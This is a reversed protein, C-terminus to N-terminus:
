LLPFKNSIGYPMHLNSFHLFFSLSSFFFFFSSIFIFFPIQTYFLCFIFLARVLNSWLCVKTLSLPLKKQCVNNYTWNPFSQHTCSPCLTLIYKFLFFFLFPFYFSTFSVIIYLSCRSWGCADYM